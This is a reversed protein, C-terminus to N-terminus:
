GSRLWSGGCCAADELDHFPTAHCIRISAIDV